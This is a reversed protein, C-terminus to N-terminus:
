IGAQAAKAIRRLLRQRILGSGPRILWWYPTFRRRTAADPCHVRTETALLTRGDALPRATVNMVLRAAGAFVPDQVNAFSSADDCRVLGYDAQWFRGALGFAVEVDGERGLPTFDALGFSRDPLNHPRGFRALFRAPAERLATCRAIFPDDAVAPHVAQNLLTRPSAQVPLAHREVFQFEPLYRDILLV